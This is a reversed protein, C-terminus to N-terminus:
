PRTPFAALYRLGFIAFLFTFWVPNSQGLLFTELTSAYIGYLWLQTFLTLLAPDAGARAARRADSLPQAVVAWLLLALGVVGQSLTADLYGNHAHAAGGVWQNEANFRIEPNAWFISFGFGKIWHEPLKELAFRWIDARGTFSADIPLAATLAALRSDMQSGVGIASFFVLPALALITRWRGFAGTVAFESIALTPAWLAIATKGGTMALFSIAAVTVAAGTLSRGIRWLYVGIFAFAGMMLSAENKHVFVGRWDGALNPEVTDGALHIARASLFAVGFYSLAIVAGAMAALLTALEARGRPLLPAAAAASAVFFNLAARKLSTTPDQSLLCAGVLWAALAVFAPTALRRLAVGDTPAVLWLSLSALAAFAFYTMAQAGSSLDAASAAALDAFPDLSVWGLAFIAIFAGTRLPDGTTAQVPTDISAPFGSPPLPDPM